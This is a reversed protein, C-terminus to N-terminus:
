DRDVVDTYAVFLCSGVTHMYFVVFVFNPSHDLSYELYENTKIEMVISWSDM